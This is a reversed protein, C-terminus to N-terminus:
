GKRAKRAASLEKKCDASLEKRHEKFCAKIGGDGPKVGPCLKDADTKCAAMMGSGEGAPPADAALAPVAFLAALTLSLTAAITKM